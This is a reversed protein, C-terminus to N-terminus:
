GGIEDYLGGSMPGALLPEIEQALRARIPADLWAQYGEPSEWRAHVVFGGGAVRPRLLTGGCFAPLRAAHGLVDLRRFAEIFAEEDVPCVPITLISHTM